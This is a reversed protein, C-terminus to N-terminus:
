CCYSGSSRRGPQWSPHQPFWERFPQPCCLRCAVFCRAGLVGIVVCAIDLHQPPSPPISSQFIQPKGETNRANKSIQIRSTIKTGQLHPGFPFMSPVPPFQSGRPCNSYRMQEKPSKNAFKDATAFETSSFIIM